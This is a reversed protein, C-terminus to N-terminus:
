PICSWVYEKTCLLAQSRPGCDIANGCHDTTGQPCPLYYVASETCTYSCYSKVSRWGRRRDDNMPVGSCTGQNYDYCSDKILGGGGCNAYEYKTRTLSLTADTPTFCNIPHTTVCDDGTASVQEWYGSDIVKVEKTFEGCCSDTAKVTLTGCAGDTTLLGTQDISAGTGSVSWLIFGKSDLLSYQESGGTSVITGAGDVSPTPTCDTCNPFDIIKYGCGCDDCYFFDISDGNFCCDDPLDVGGGSSTVIFNIDEDSGCPSMDFGPIISVEGVAGYVTFAFNDCDVDAWLSLTRDACESPLPTDPDPNPPGDEPTDWPIDSGPPTGGDFGGDYPDWPFDYTGYHFQELEAFNGSLWPKKRKPPYDIGTVKSRGLFTKQLWPKIAM